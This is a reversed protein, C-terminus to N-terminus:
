PHTPISPDSLNGSADFLGDLREFELRIFSPLDPWSNLRVGDRSYRTVQEDWARCGVVSGDWRYAAFFLPRMVMGARWQNVNASVIELPQESKWPDDTQVGLLNLHGCFFRGGNFHRLLIQLYSYKRAPWKPAGGGMFGASDQPPGHISAGLDSEIQGLHVPSIAPYLVHFWREEGPFLPKRQGVHVINGDHSKGLSLTRKAVHSDVARAIEQLFVTSGCYEAAM